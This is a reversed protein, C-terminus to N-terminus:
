PRHYLRSRKDFVMLHVLAGRGKQGDVVLEVAGQAERVGVRHLAQPQSGVVGHARMRPLRGQAAPGGDALAPAGDELILPRQVDPRALRLHAEEAEGGLDVAEFVYVRGPDGAGADELRARRIDEPAHVAGPFHEFMVGERKLGADDVAQVAERMVSEWVHSASRAGETAQRSRPLADCTFIPSCM